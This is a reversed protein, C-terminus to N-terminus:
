LAYKRTSITYTYLTSYLCVVRFVFVVIMDCLVILILHAFKFEFLIYIVHFFRIVFVDVTYSVIKFVLM